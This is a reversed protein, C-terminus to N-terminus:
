SDASVTYLGTYNNTDYNPHKFKGPMPKTQGITNAPIENYLLSDKFIINNADSIDLKLLVNKATKSGSNIVEALGGFDELQNVQWIKNGAIVAYNNLKLSYRERETIYVDDIIWYYYNAEFRFRVKVNAQGEVGPLYIRRQNNVYPGNVSYHIPDEEATNIEITKWINGGDISYEVFYKSEFQRLAQSFVLNVESIDQFGSLDIVPSELTGSQPAPCPGSYQNTGGTEMFDSDFCMAGNCSSLSTIKGGGTSYYGKTCMIDSSWTWFPYNNCSSSTTTWGNLGGNFAGEGNTGWLINDPMKDETFYAAIKFTGAGKSYNFGAGEASWVRILIESGAPLCDVSLKYLTPDAGSFNGCFYPTNISECSNNTYIAMGVTKMDTTGSNDIKIIFKKNTSLNPIMLKYWVDDRYYDPSCVVPALVGAADVTGITTGPIWIASAEDKALTLVGPNDCNDNVPQSYAIINLSIFFISLVSRFLPIQLYALKM